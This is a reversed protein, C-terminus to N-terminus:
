NKSKPLGNKFLNMKRCNSKIMSITRTSYCKSRLSAKSKMSKSPCQAPSVWFKPTTMVPESYICGWFYCMQSTKVSNTNYVRLVPKTETPTKTGRQETISIKYVPWPVEMANVGQKERASAAELLFITVSSYIDTTGICVYCEREM